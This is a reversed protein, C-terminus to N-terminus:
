PSPLFDLVLLTIDDDQARGVDAASGPLEWHLESRLSPTMDIALPLAALPMQGRNYTTRRLLAVRPQLLQSPQDPRSNTLSSHPRRLWGPRPTYRGIRRKESPPFLGGHRERAGPRRLDGLYAATVGNGVSSTLNPVSQGFSHM